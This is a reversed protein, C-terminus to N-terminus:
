RQGLPNYIFNVLYLRRPKEAASPIPSFILRM